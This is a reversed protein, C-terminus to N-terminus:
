SGARRTAPQDKFAGSNVRRAIAIRLQNLAHEVEADIVDNHSDQAPSQKRVQRRDQLKIDRHIVMLAASWALASVVGAAILPVAVLRVDSSTM